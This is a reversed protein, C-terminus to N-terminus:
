GNNEGKKQEDYCVKELIDLCEYASIKIGMGLLDVNFIFDQIINEFIYGVCGSEEQLTCYNVYVFEPNYGRDQLYCYIPCSYGSGTKMAYTQSDNKFFSRLDDIDIKHVPFDKAMVTVREYVILYRLVIM